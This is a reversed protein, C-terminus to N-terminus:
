ARPAPRPAGALAAPRRRGARRARRPRRWRPHRSRIARVGRLDHGDGQVPRPPAARLPAAAPVVEAAPVAAEAGAAPVAGAARAETSRRPRPSPRPQCQPPRAASGASAGGSYFRRLSSAARAPRPTFPAYSENCHPALGCGQAGSGTGAHMHCIKLSASEMAREQESRERQDAGRHRRKQETVGRRTAPASKTTASM